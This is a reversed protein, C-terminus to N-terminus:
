LGQIIYFLLFTRTEHLIGELTLSHTTTELLKVESEALPSKKYTNFKKM